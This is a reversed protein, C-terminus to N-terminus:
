KEIEKSKTFENKIVINRKIRLAVLMGSGRLRKRKKCTVAFAGTLGYFSLKGSKDISFFATLKSIRM